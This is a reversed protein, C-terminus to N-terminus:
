AARVWLSLRGSRGQWESGARRFGYRRLTRKMRENATTAFVTEGASSVLADTLERSLLRGRFEEDVAVYGFERANEPLDIGAQGGIEQTYEGDLAKLAAVGVVRDHHRALVASSARPLGRRAWEISVAGGQELLALAQELSESTWESVRQVRVM